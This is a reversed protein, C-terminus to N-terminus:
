MHVIFTFVLTYLFRFLIGIEVLALFLFYFWLCNLIGLKSMFSFCSMGSNMEIKNLFLSM